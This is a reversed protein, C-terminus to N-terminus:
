FRNQLKCQLPLLLLHVVTKHETEWLKKNYMWEEFVLFKNVTKKLTGWWVVKCMHQPTAVAHFIGVVLHTATQFTVGGGLTMVTVYARSLSLHNVVCRYHGPTLLLVSESQLCKSIVEWIKIKWHLFNLFDERAGGHIDLSLDMFTLWSDLFNQFM